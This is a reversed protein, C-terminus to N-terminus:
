FLFATQYHSYEKRLIHIIMKFAKYVNKNLNYFFILKLPIATVDVVSSSYRELNEYEFELTLSSPFWWQEHPQYKDFLRIFEVM